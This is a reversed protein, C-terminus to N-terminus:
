SSIMLWCCLVPSHIINQCTGLSKETLAMALGPQNHIHGFQGKQALLLKLFFGEIFVFLTLKGCIGCCTYLKM